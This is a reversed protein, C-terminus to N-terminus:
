VTPYWGLMFLVCVRDGFLARAASPRRAREHRVVPLQERDSDVDAAGHLDLSSQALTIGLGMAKETQDIARGGGVDGHRVKRYGFIGTGALKSNQTRSDPLKSPRTM